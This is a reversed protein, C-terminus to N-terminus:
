RELVKLFLSGFAERPSGNGEMQSGNGEWASGNITWFSGEGVRIRWKELVQPRSPGFFIESAQRREERGRPLATPRDAEGTPIATM